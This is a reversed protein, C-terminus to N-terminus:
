FNDKKRSEPLQGADILARIDAPPVWGARSLWSKAMDPYKEDVENILKAELDHRADWAINRERRADEFKPNMDAILAAQNMKLTEIRADFYKRIREREAVLAEAAADAAKCASTEVSSEVTARVDDRAKTYAKYRASFHADRLSRYAKNAAKQEETLKAM